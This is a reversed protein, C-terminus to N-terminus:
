NIKVLMFFVKAISLKQFSLSRLFEVVQQPAFKSSSEFNKTIYDITQLIM